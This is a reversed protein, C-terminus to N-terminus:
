EEIELQYRWFDYEKKEKIQQNVCNSCTFYDDLIVNTDGCSICQDPRPM